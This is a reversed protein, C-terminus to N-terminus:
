QGIVQISGAIRNTKGSLLLEYRGSPLDNLPVYIEVTGKDVLNERVVKGSRDILHLTLNEDKSLEGCQIRTYNRAPNPFAHIIQKSDAEQIGTPDNVRITVSATDSCNGRAVSLVVRYEGADQYTYSISDSGQLLAGDGMNWNIFDANSYPYELVIAEAAADVETVTTQISALIQNGSEIVLNEEVMVIGQTFEIRYEGAPLNHLMEEDITNLTEILVSGQYVSAQWNQTGENVLEITGSQGNCGANATSISIGKAYHLYFRGEYIGESLAFSVSPNLRLNYSSNTARDELVLKATVPMNRAEKLSILVNGSESVELTLPITDNPQAANRSQIGLNKNDKVTYWFSQLKLPRPKLLDRSPQFAENDGNQIFYVALEDREVGQQMNLQVLPLSCTTQANKISVIEARHENTLRLTDTGNSQVFFGEASGIWPKGGNIGIGEHQGTVLWGSYNGNFTPDTALKVIGPLVHNTQASYVDNWDIPSPYPNGASNWVIDENSTATNLPLFFNGSNLNGFFELTTGGQIATRYSKMASFLLEQQQRIQWASAFGNITASGDFSWFYPNNELLDSLETNQSWSLTNLPSALHVHQIETGPIFRQVNAKGQLVGNGDGSILATGQADSKLILSDGSQFLGEELRIIGSLSLKGTNVRVGQGQMLLNRYNGSVVSQTQDSQYTVTGGFNRNGNGTIARQVDSAHRIILEDADGTEFPSNGNTQHINHNIIFRTGPLSDTGLSINGSVLINSATEAIGGPEGPNYFALNHCNLDGNDGVQVTFDKNTRIFLNHYHLSPVLQNGPANWLEGNGFFTTGEGAIFTSDNLHIHQPNGELILTGNQQNLIGSQQLSFVDLVHTGLKLSSGENIHISRVIIDNNISYTSAATLYFDAYSFIGTGSIDNEAANGSLSIFTNSFNSITGDNRLNGFINLYANFQESCVLAAGAAITLNGCQAPLNGQLEPYNSQGGPIFVPNCRGPIANGSWNQPDFWNTNIGLWILSDANGAEFTYSLNATPLTVPASSRMVATSPSFGLQSNLWASNGPNVQRTHVDASSNGRLGIQFFAEFGQFCYPSTNYSIQIESNFELLKIQFDFRNRLEGCFGVSEADGQIKFNRWEITFVRNPATGSLRTRISANEGSWRGELDANLASIVGDFPYDSQLINTYPYVIGSIRFPSEPGFWIYGNSAIGISYFTNGNFSFPFGISQNEFFEEDSPSLTDSVGPQLGGSVLEITPTSEPLHEYVIDSRQSFQYGCALQAKAKFALAIILFTFLRIYQHTMSFDFANEKRV